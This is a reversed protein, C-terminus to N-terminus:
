DEERFEEGLYQIFTVESMPESARKYEGDMKNLEALAATAARPDRMKFGGRSDAVLQSCVGVIDWLKSRKEELTVQLQDSIVSQRLRIAEAIDANTLLRCGQSRASRESYGAAIAARTANQDILYEDIFRNHKANM